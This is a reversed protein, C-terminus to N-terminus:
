FSFCSSPWLYGFRCYIGPKILSLLLLFPKQCAMAFSGPYIAVSVFYAAVFAVPKRIHVQSNITTFQIPYVVFFARLVAHTGIKLYIYYKVHVTFLYYAVIYTSIVFVVRLVKCSQLHGKTFGQLLRGK